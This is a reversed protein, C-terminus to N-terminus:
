YLAVGAIWPHAAILIGFIVLGIVIGVIEVTWSPPEPKVWEGDRQNILLVMAICWAGLGGFLVLSRSDGNALLHAIAWLLVGILQPHRIVRGIRTPHNAAAFLIFALASLAFAAYRMELTPIYISGPVAKRWGLVILALSALIALSFLGKYGGEGIKDIANQRSNRGIVPILHVLSWLLVGTILLTM